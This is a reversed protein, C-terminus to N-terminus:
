YLGIQAQPRYAFLTQLLVLLPVQSLLIITRQALLRRHRNCHTVKLFLRPYRGNKRLCRRHGAGRLGIELLQVEPPLFKDALSSMAGFRLFGLGRLGGLGTLRGLCGKSGQQLSPAFPHKM